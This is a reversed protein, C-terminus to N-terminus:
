ADKNEKHAPNTYKGYKGYRGVVISEKYKRLQKLQKESWVKPKGRRNTLREPIPLYHEKVTGDALSYREWQYWKQLTHISIGLLECIEDARYIKQTSM